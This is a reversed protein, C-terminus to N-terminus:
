LILNNLWTSGPQARDTYDETTPKVRSHGDSILSHNSLYRYSSAFLLCFAMGLIAIGLYRYRTHFQTVVSTMKNNNKASM